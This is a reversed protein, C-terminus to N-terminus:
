KRRNPCEGSGDSTGRQSGSRFENLWGLGADTSNRPKYEAGIFGGYGMADISQMLNQYSVEGGDPEGRDPVAAIQIHGLYRMNRELRKTLDGQEIQVHYCDFMIKVNPRAVAAITDAAVEVLSLHYGPADRHNIPEILITVGALAARDAAYALNERFVREAGPAGQHKGAMVHVNHCHITNAYDIAEDIIRRAEEERGPAAAVGFDSTGNKGMRTNLGLMPLGTERLAAIV